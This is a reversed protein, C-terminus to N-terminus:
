GAAQRPLVGELGAAERHTHSPQLVADAVDLLSLGDRASVAQLWALAEAVACDERVAVYGAAQHIREWRAARTDTTWVPRHCGTSAHVPRWRLLAELALGAASQAHTIHTDTVETREAYYLCIVGIPTHRAYLPLALVHQVDPLEESLRPGTRCHYDRLDPVFVPRMELAASVSPGDALTFQAAEGQLAPEDTAHLLQWHELRPLLSLAARQAGLSQRFATCLRHPLARRGVAAAVSVDHVISTSEELM